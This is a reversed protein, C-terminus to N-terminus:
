WIASSMMGRSRPRVAGEAGQCGLQRRGEGFVLVPVASDESVLGYRGRGHPSRASWTALSWVASDRMSLRGCSRPGARSLDRWRCRGPWPIRLRDPLLVATTRVRTGPVVYPGIQPKSLETVQQEHHKVPLQTM